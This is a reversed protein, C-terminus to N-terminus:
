AVLGGQADVSWEILMSLGENLLEMEKASLPHHGLLLAQVFVMKVLMRLLEPDDVRSLKRVLANDYNFCVTAGSEAVLPEVLEELTGGWLDDAMSKTQRVARVFAGVESTSYLAALHAPRFRRLAVGCEHEALAKEAIDLFGETRDREDLTLEEFTEVLDTSDLREVPVEPFLARFREMLDADYTYAGNVVGLGQAAAVPAIQRFQDLGAVYRITGSRKRFEGFTMRGLSTEYPIWEIFLRFFADDYLMLSKISLAHLGIFRQLRKPEAGAMRVLYERLTAGLADRTAALTDDEYFSERSANPRLDDANVVARVFFAWEPLLNEGTETLLMRKLYVRHKPKTTLNPTFPLVFAVGSLGGVKTELPIADFFEMDFRDRGYALLSERRAESSIFSREWPLDGENLVERGEGTVLEIPFPLLGGFHIALERVKEPKFLDESGARAALRVATGVPRADAVSELSYVGDPQGHWIVTQGGGKASHSIVEIRDSVLFCSLLGIGFQGIFETRQRALDDRKSSTGITALFTHVEAETLGIGNDTVVIEAPGNPGPSKVEIVIRPDFTSTSDMSRARIADVANQLLERVFVEPGSYLHNSLLDIVGQLNVRFTHEM